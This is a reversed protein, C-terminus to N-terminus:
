SKQGWREAAQSISERTTPSRQVGAAIASATLAYENIDTAAKIVAQTLLIAPSIKGETAAQAGHPVGTLYSLLQAAYGAIEVASDRQEANATAKREPTDFMHNDLLAKAHQAMDDIPCTSLETLSITALQMAHLDEEPPKVMGEEAQQKVVAAMRSFNDLFLKATARVPAIIKEDKEGSIIERLAKAFSAINALPGQGRKYDGHQGEANMYIRLLPMGMNYAAQRVAEGNQTSIGKNNLWSIISQEAVRRSRSLDLPEPIKTYESTTMKVNDFM